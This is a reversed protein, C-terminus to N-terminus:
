WCRNFLVEGGTALDLKGDGDFDGTALGRSLAPYSTAPAFSRGGGQGLFVATASSSKVIVDVRGDGDIDGLAPTGVGLPATMTQVVQFAVNGTHQNLLVTVGGGESTAVIDLAGDGDLDGLAVGAAVYSGVSYDLEAGFTGNGNNPLIGVKGSGGPLDDSFVLDVFGDGNLDGAVISGAASLGIPYDTRTPFSAGGANLFVSVARGGSGDGTAFDPRGDKNFDGIVISTPYSLATLPYDTKTGFTGGGANLLVSVSSGSLNVVALDPRGDGNLDGIAISVPNGGTLYDVHPAFTGAGQNLLVSITNANANANSIVLDLTGDGNLDGATVSSTLSQGTSVMARAVFTGDGRGILFDAQSPPYGNTVVLDIKGDGDFDGHVMGQPEYFTPYDVHAGFSGGGQGLLVSVTYDTGNLTAIDVKSDGNLDQVLPQSPGAGTAYSAGLSFTGAGANMLLTLANQNTVVLDTKLDGNVDAAALSGPALGTSSRLRPAFAGAGTNLFIGIDVDSVAIDPKGDGNFDGVALDRPGVGTAYVVQPALKGAGQNLLVSITNDSINLCTVDLSGNGDFDALTVTTPYAGTAYDTKAGFIGNGQNLLLSLTQSGYNGVVLDPRLDGNMDGAVIGTPLISVSYGVPPAFAGGQNLLVKVIGSRDTVALDLAGNGDFDARAAGMVESSVPLLPRGPLGLRCLADCVGNTCTHQCSVGCGGCNHLSGTTTTECGDVRKDANCDAFGAACAGTCAGSVCAPTVHNSSCAQGCGGCNSPDIVPDVCTGSCTTELCACTGANCDPTPQACASPASWQGNADCTERANGSCQTSGPACAGTCAGSVCAQGTCTASQVWQGAATCVSISNGFCTTSGPTCAVCQGGLCVPASGACAAGSSQWLGSADCSQPEQGNCRTAGPTCAGTCAGGVCAQGLCPIPPKWTGAAGCTEVGNGSCQKAGPTCAGACAGSVCAQSSCSAPAGWVGSPNCTQVADGSCRTDGPACMGTCAGNVCAQGTCAAGTSQWQGVGDCLQPQRGSCGLVGPTCVGVCMNVACAQAICALPTGWQGGPECVEYHTQDLCRTSGSTCATLSGDAADGGGDTRGSEAGMADRARDNGGETFADASSADMTSGDSGPGGGEDPGNSCATVAALALFSLPVWLDKM